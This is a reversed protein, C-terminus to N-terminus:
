LNMFAFAILGMMVAISLLIIVTETLGEYDFYRFYNKISSLRKDLKRKKHEKNFNVHIVNKM